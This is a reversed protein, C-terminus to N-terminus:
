LSIDLKSYGEIDIERLKLITNIKYISNRIIEVM